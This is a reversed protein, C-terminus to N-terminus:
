KWVAQAVRLFNGGLLKNLDAEPWSREKLGAILEPIVEPGVDKMPWDAPYEAPPWYEPHSVIQQETSSPSYDLGLGVHDAGVLDRVYTICDIMALATSKRKPLFLGIGNIAIVGGTHACARIQDDTINRGHARLAKPNSHSFITPQRAMAMAEMTSRHGSHSCDLVMGVRNMEHIVRRGFDTLGHDEDHCGGGAVNNRNYAILMQRVGLRYYLSVMGADGNLAGMGELDFTVAMKGAQKALLVDAARKVLVYRDPRQELWTIYSALNRVAMTWELVDYGVDISLYDVSARRWEELHNLDYDPRPDFGSHNDWILPHIGISTAERPIKSAASKASTGANATSVGIAAAGATVGMGEVFRRRTIPM